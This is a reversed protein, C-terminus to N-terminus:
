RRSKGVCPLKEIARTSGVLSFTWTGLQSGDWRSIRIIMRNAAKGGRTMSYIIEAPAVLGNEVPVWYTPQTPEKKDLRYRVLNAHKMGIFKLKTVPDMAGIAIQLGGQLAPMCMWSLSVQQNEDLVSAMYRPQDTMEDQWSMYVFNGVRVTERAEVSLFVGLALWCTVVLLGSYILSIYRFGNLAWHSVTRQDAM